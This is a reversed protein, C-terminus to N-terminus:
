PPLEERGRRGQPLRPLEDRARKRSLAFEIALWGASVLPGMLVRRSVLKRRLLFLGVGAAGIAVPHMRRLQAAGKELARLPRDAERWLAGARQRLDDNRRRLEAKRRRLDDLRGKGAM